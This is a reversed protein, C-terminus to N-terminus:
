RALIANPSMASQHYSSWPISTFSYRVEGRKPSANHVSSCLPIEKHVWPFGMLPVSPLTSPRGCRHTRWAWSRIGNNPNIGVFKRKIIIYIELNKHFQANRHRRHSRHPSKTVLPPGRPTKKKIKRYTRPPRYGFKPPPTITNPSCPTQLSGCSGLRFGPAFGGLIRM